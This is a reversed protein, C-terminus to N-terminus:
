RRIRRAEFTIVLRVSVLLGRHKVPWPLKPSGSLSYQAEPILTVRSLPVHVAVGPAALFQGDHRSSRTATAGAGQTATQSFRVAGVSVGPVIEVGGVPVLVGLDVAYLQVRTRVRTAPSAPLSSPYDTTAGAHYAWRLGIYTLRGAALGFVLGAGPGYARGTGYSALAGLQVEGLQAQLASALPLLAAVVLGCRTLRRSM